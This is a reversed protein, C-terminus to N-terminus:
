EDDGFEIGRFRDPISDRDLTMTTEMGCHFCHIRCISLELDSIYMVPTMAIASYPHKSHGYDYNTKFWDAVFKRIDINM